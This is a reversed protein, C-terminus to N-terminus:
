ANNTLLAKLNPFIVDCVGKIWNYLVSADLTEQKVIGFTNHINDFLVIVLGIILVAKFLAFILGLLRNFWGLNVASVTKTLIKGILSFVLIAVVIISGFCVVKIVSENWSVYNALWESLAPSFRYALFASLVLSALAVLQEVFGKKIGTIIAPIFCLAIIIDITNM